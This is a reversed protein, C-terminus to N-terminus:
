EDKKKLLDILDSTSSVILNNNITQQQPKESQFLKKKKDALDVLDRNADSITKILTSVVEFARASESQKAILIMNELADNGMVILNHLSNRAVEVDSKNDKDIDDTSIVEVKAPLQPIMPSLGLSAAIPDNNASM